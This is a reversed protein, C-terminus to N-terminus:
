NWYNNTKKDSFYKSFLKNDKSKDHSKKAQKNEKYIMRHLYQHHIKDKAPHYSEKKPDGIIYSIKSKAM